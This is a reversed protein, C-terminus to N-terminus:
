QWTQHPYPTIGYSTFCSSSLEPRIAARGPASVVMNGTAVPPRTQFPRRLGAGLGATVQVNVAVSGLRNCDIDM